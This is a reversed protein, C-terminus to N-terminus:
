NYFHNPDTAMTDQKCNEKGCVCVCVDVPRQTELPRSAQVFCQQAHYCTGPINVAVSGHDTEYYPTYSGYLAILDNLRMKRQFWRKKQQLSPTNWAQWRLVQSDIYSEIAVTEISQSISLVSLKEDNCTGTQHLNCPWMQRCNAPAGSLQVEIQMMERQRM